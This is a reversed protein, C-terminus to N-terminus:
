DRYLLGLVLGFLLHRGLNQAYAPLTALKPLSGDKILPHYKDALPTLPWAATIFLGGFITGKLWNPGPLFRKALAAYFESLAVGNLFNLLWALIYFKQETSAKKGMLGQLFRIDSFHNGTISMEAEMAATYVATAITGDIAARIPHWNHSIISTIFRM